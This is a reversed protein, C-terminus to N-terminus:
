GCTTVNILPAGSQGAGISATGCLTTGNTFVKVDIDATPYISLLDHLVGELWNQRTTPAAYYWNTDLAWVQLRASSVHQQYTKLASGTSACRADSPALDLRMDTTFANAAFDGAAAKRILAIAQNAADVCNGAHTDFGATDAANVPAATPIATPAPTPSSAVLTTSPVFSPTACATQLLPLLLLPAVLFARKMAEM